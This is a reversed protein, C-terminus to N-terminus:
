EWESEDTETILSMIFSFRCDEDEFETGEVTANYWAKIIVCKFGGGSTRSTEITVDPMYGMEKMGSRISRGTRNSVQKGNVIKDIYEDKTQHITIVNCTNSENRARKFLDRWEANVPGYLNDIRGKPKLEGFRALRIMEWGESATDMIVTKAWEDMAQRWGRVMKNWVPTAANAIEQETVGSFTGGFNLLRIDKGEKKFKQVVGDIKEATHALGVPGPATLALRTRGSGTPGLIDMHVHRRTVDAPADEWLLDEGSESTARPSVRSAVKDKWGM